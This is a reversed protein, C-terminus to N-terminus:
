IVNYYDVYIQSISEFPVLFWKMYTKKKKEYIIYHNLDHTFISFRKRELKTIKPNRKTYKKNINNLKYKKLVCGIM